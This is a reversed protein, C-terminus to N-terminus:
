LHHNDCHTQSGGWKQLLLPSHGTQSRQPPKAAECSGQLPWRCQTLLILITLVTQSSARCNHIIQASRAGSLLGCSPTFPAQTDKTCTKTEHTTLHVYPCFTRTVLIQMRHSSGPLSLVFTDTADLQSLPWAAM